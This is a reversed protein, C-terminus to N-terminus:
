RTAILTTYVVLRESYNKTEKNWQGHCTVLNLHPIKSSAFVEQLPFRDHPYKAIRDVAFSWKVGADDTVIVVDGKELKGIGWFAAPAGSAKDYHGDIVANGNAGPRFGPNFWATNDAYKPVDMRGSSDMSVSEIVTTLDIKTIEIRKPIGPQQTVTPSILIPNKEIAAKRTRTQTSLVKTEKPVAHADMFGYGVGIGLLVIAILCIINKKM